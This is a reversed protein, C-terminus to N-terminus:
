NFTSTEEIIKFNSDMLECISKFKEVENDEFKFWEGMLKYEDDDIKYSSYRNHLASEIKTARTTKYFNVLVMKFPNGTQLFDVRKQPNSKTYGIKYIKTGEIKLLYVYKM